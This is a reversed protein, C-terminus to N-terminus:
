VTGRRAPVASEAVLNAAQTALAIMVTIAVLV